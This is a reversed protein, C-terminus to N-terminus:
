QGLLKTLDFFRVSRVSHFNQALDIEEVKDLAREGLVDALAVDGGGGGDLRRREAARSDGDLLRVADDKAAPHDEGLREREGRALGRHLLEGALALQKM